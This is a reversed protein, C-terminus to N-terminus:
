ECNAVEFPVSAAHDKWCQSSISEIIPGLDPHEALYADVAAQNRAVCEAVTVCAGDEQGEEDNADAAEGALTKELDIPELALVVPREYPVPEEAEADVAGDKAEPLLALRVIAAVPLLSAQAPSWSDWASQLNGDQDQLQVAFVSVHSALLEVGPDDRRPFNRDLPAVPPRASAWRLLDSGEGDEAPVLWYAIDVLDSEAGGGSRPRHNRAQFRLREAGDRGRGEAFFLWPFELPDTADPKKVLTAAELDRTVRDLVISARRLDVSQDLAAQTERSLDVYFNAAFALVIGTLLVVVLMELLTFGGAGASRSM